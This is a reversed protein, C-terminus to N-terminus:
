RQPMIIRSHPKRWLIRSRLSGSFNAAVIFALSKGQWLGAFWGRLETALVNAKGGYLELERLYKKSDGPPIPYSSGEQGEYTLIRTEREEANQYILVAAGLGATLVLTALLNVVISIIRPSKMHLCGTLTYSSLRHTTLPWPIM